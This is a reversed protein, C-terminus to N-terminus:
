APGFAHDIADGVAPAFEALVFAKNITKVETSLLGCHVIANTPYAAIVRQGRM